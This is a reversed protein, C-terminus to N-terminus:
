RAAVTATPAPQDRATSREPHLRRTVRRWVVVEAVLVLAYFGLIEFGGPAALGTSMLAMVVGTLVVYGVVAVAVVSVIRIFANRLMHDTVRRRATGPSTTVAPGRALVASTRHGMTPPM